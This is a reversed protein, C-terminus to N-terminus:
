IFCIVSIWSFSPYWWAIGAIFLFIGIAAILADIALAILKSGTVLTLSFVIDLREPPGMAEYFEKLALLAGIQDLIVLLFLILVTLTLGLVPRFWKAYWMNFKVEELYAESYYEKSTGREFIEIQDECLNQLLFDAISSCTIESSTNQDEFKKSFIQDEDDIAVRYQESFPDWPRM